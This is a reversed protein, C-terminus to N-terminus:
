ANNRVLDGRKINRKERLYFALKNAEENLQKYTLSTTEFVVATNGPTTRVQQEFLEILTKDKPYDLKTQNFDKTILKKEEESLMSIESVKIEDNLVVEGLIKIYHNALDKIFDEKFLNKDYEISINIGDESPIAELTIDFKSIDIDPVYYKAKVKNFNPEKYGNNQYIFMVDFLPNRSTDRKIELKNVLEDFPYTQYKYSTLLKDRVKAALEKFTKERDIKCRLALTNAFMGIIDYTDAIDRGVIPSGVVIDEQSTYKSLLIYFSTLLMMYPTIELKSSIEEIQRAVHNSIMKYVKKGQYTKIAPRVSKTPMNLVPIEEKFQNIWYEEAEKEVKLKENEYVAFDKYTIGLDSLQEDNYLKCLEETFIGLSTGDSIIHHMDVFIASKGDTFKVFQARLLPAKALDFPQVFEKFIKKLESFQVNEKIQLKFEAEELIKQVVNEDKLEFYTRLSEHREILKNLCDELKNIDVEGELIVGGPINYLTSAQGAVKSAFYIRKQASSVPYYEAKEVSIIHM